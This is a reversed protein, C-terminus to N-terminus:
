HARSKQRVATEKTIEFIDKTEKPVLSGQILERIMKKRINPMDEQKPRAIEERSLIEANQCLFVGCDYGNKQLSANEEIKKTISIEKGKLSFYKVLFKEMVKLANSTQRTGRISDHYTMIKEKVKYTILSWHERKNIPILILDKEGLDVKRIWRCVESFNGEFDLDLGTYAHVPIAYVEQLNQKSNREQILHLYEDIIGDNVYNKGTLSRYDRRTLPIFHRTIIDNLDGTNLNRILDKESEIVLKERNEKHENQSKENVMRDSQTERTVERSQSVEIVKRQEKQNEEIEVVTRETQTESIEQKIEISRPGVLVKKEDKESKSSKRVAPVTKEAKVDRKDENITDSMVTREDLEEKMIQIKRTSNEFVMTNVKITKEKSMYNRIDLTKTDKMMNDRLRKKGETKKVPKRSADALIVINRQEAKDGHLRIDNVKKEICQPLTLVEKKITEEVEDDIVLIDKIHAESAESGKSEDKSGPSQHPERPKTIGGSHHSEQTTDSKSKYIRSRREFIARCTTVSMHISLGRGKKFSRGCVKCNEYTKNKTEQDKPNDLRERGTCALDKTVNGTRRRNPGDKIRKNTVKSKTAISATELSWPPNGTRKHLKNM